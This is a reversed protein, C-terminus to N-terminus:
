YMLDMWTFVAMMWTKGSSRFSIPFNARVTDFVLAFPRRILQALLFLRLEKVYRWKAIILLSFIMRIPAPGNKRLTDTSKIMHDQLAYLSKAVSLYRKLLRNGARVDTRGNEIPFVADRADYYEFVCLSPPFTRRWQKGHPNGTPWDPNAPELSCIWSNPSASPASNSSSAPVTNVHRHSYM